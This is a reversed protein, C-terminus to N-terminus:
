KQQKMTRNLLSSKSRILDLKKKYTERINEKNQNKKNFNEIIKKAMLTEQMQKKKLVKERLNSKMMSKNMITSSNEMHFRSINQYFSDM